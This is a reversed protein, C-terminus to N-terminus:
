RWHPIVAILCSVKRHLSLRISSAGRAERAAPQGFEDLREGGERDRTLLELHLQVRAVLLLGPRDARTRASRVADEVSVPRFNMLLLLLLFLLLFSVALILM